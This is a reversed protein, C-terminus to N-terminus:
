KHKRSLYLDYPSWHGGLLTIILEIALDITKNKQDLKPNVEVVDISRINKKSLKECVYKIERYTLGGQNKIGTGPANLKDISDIDLSIHLPNDGLYDLSRNLVESIGKEIVDGIEFMKIKNKKIYRRESDDIDKAGLIVVDTYNYKAQRYEQYLSDGLVTSLSMGHINGTPSNKTDNCDPHADIYLIKSDPELKKSAFMSGIAMSHDGGLTLLQDNKIVKGTAFQYIQKNILKLYDLDNLSKDGQKEIEGIIKFDIKNAKFAQKLGNKLIVDPALESGKNFSGLSTGAKIIKLM